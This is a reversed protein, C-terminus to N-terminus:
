EAQGTLYFAAWFYPQPYDKMLALQAERLATARGKKALRAYFDQMLRATAADDVEWLSALVSRAGAYFLGRTLGVVEDGTDITGLGSECASLAVLEAELSLGFLEGVTLRGDNQADSSLLLASDLPRSADFEGHAAIHLFSFAASLDRFATESAANRLLLKSEPTMAAVQKAEVGAYPLDREPAGLDPNGLVLMPALRSGPGGRLHKGATASPLIRLDHSEILYRKGDHLAAFPLNHLIGHPVILLRKPQIHAAVPAILRTYLSRGAEIAKEPRRLNARLNRVEAELGKASGRQAYLGNQGLVFVYLTDGHTYFEILQEHNGLQQKLEAIPAAEVSVLSALQPASAQLQRAQRILLNRSTSAPTGAAADLPDQVRARKDQLDYQALLARAGESVSRKQVLNVQKALLDVLARSKAREITELARDLKGTEFLLRVLLAYLDQKDVAFGIKNAETQISARHAEVIDVAQTLLEIAAPKDGAAARLGGLDYLALWHIEGNDAIQPIQLLRQYEAAAEENKGLGLLARARMYIRPIEDWVANGSGFIDLAKFWQYTWDGALADLTKQYRGLALNVRAIAKAQASKHHDGSIRLLLPAAVKELDDAYREADSRQNSRLAALTKAALAEVHIDTYTGDSKGFWALALDAAQSAEAYQGLELLTEARWLHMHPTVDDMGKMRSRKDGKAVGAAMKDLCDFIRDYRKTRTYAFCLVHWDGTRMSDNQSKEELRQVLEAFKGAEALRLQETSSIAALTPLAATLWAGLLCARLIPIRFTPHRVAPNRSVRNM